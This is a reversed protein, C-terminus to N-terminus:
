KSIFKDIEHSHKDRHNGDQKWPHDLEEGSIMLKWAIWTQLPMQHEFNVALRCAVRVNVKEVDIRRTIHNKRPDKRFAEVSRAFSVSGIHQIM